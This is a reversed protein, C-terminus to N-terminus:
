VSEIFVDPSTGITTTEWKYNWHSTFSKVRATNHSRRWYCKKCCDRTYKLVLEPQCRCGVPRGRLQQNFLPLKDSSSGNLTYSILQRSVFFVTYISLNSASQLLSLLIDILKIKINFFSPCRPYSPNNFEQKAIVLHFFRPTWQLKWPFLVKVNYKIVINRGKVTKNQMM